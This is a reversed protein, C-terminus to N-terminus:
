RGDRGRAVRAFRRSEQAVLVSGGDAISAAAAAVAAADQRVQGGLCAFLLMRRCTCVAMTMAMVDVTVAPM